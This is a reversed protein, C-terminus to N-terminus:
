LLSSMTGSHGASLMAPFALQSGLPAPVKVTLLVKGSYWWTQTTNYNLTHTHTHTAATKVTQTGVHLVGGAELAAM